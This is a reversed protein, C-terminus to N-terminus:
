FRILGAHSFARRRVLNYKPVSCYQDSYSYIYLCSFEFRSKWTYKIFSGRILSRLTLHDRKMSSRLNMCWPMELEIYSVSKTICSLIAFGAWIAEFLFFCACVFVSPCLRYCLSTLLYQYTLSYTLLRDFWTSTITFLALSTTPGSFRVSLKLLFLSILKTLRLYSRDALTLERLYDKKTLIM